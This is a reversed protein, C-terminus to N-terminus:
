LMVSKEYLFKNSGGPGYVIGSYKVILKSISGSLDHGPKDPRAKVQSSSWLPLLSIRQIAADKFAEKNIPQDSLSIHPVWGNKQPAAAVAAPPHATPNIISVVPFHDSVPHSDKRTTVCQPVINDSRFTMNNSILVYDGIYLYGNPECCTRPPNACTVTINNIEPIGTQSFPKFNKNWYVGNGQPINENTDGLFIIRHEKGVIFHSIDQTPQLEINNNNEIQIVVGNRINNSLERELDNKQISHSNHINIVIYSSGNSKDRLFLIMYPRGPHHIHGFKVADLHFRHLNYFTIMDEPGSKGHVYALRRNSILDNFYPARIINDWGSAEQFGIIDYANSLFGMEQPIDNSIFNILNRMCPRDAPSLSPSKGICKDVVLKGTFDAKNHTMCGFCINYSLVVIPLQALVAPGAPGAQSVDPTDFYESIAFLSTPEHKKPPLPVVIQATGTPDDPIVSKQYYHTFEKTIVPPKGPASSSQHRILPRRILTRFDSRLCKSLIEHIIEQKFQKFQPGFYKIYNPDDYKRVLFKGYLAYNNYESYAISNSLSNRYISAVTDAFHDINNQNALFQHIPNDFRLPGYNHTDVPVLIELISVHYESSPIKMKSLRQTIERGLHSKPDIVAEIYLQFSNVPYWPLIVGGGLQEKLELYKQKYKLYKQKFDM